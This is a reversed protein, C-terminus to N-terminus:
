GRASHHVIRTGAGRDICNNFVCGSAVALSIGLLTATLDADAARGKAALLYGAAATVLNGVVIWPKVILGYNKITERM